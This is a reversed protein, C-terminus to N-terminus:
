AKGEWGRSWLRMIRLEMQNGYLVLSEKREKLTFEPDCGEAV